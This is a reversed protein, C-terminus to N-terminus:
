RRTPRWARATPTSSARRSRSRRRGLPRRRAPDGDAATTKVDYLTIKEFLDTILAQKDAPPRPAPAGRGPGALASLARGQLRVAGAAPAPRPQGGDEGIQDRLLYMVLAGKRYHIYGQNEVRM